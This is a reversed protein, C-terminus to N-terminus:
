QSKGMWTKLCDLGCFDKPTEIPPTIYAATQWESNCPRNRVVLRLAYEDQGRSSLTIDAGCGDCIVQNSTAM